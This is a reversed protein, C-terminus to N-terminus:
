IDSVENEQKGAIKEYVRKILKVEELIASLHAVEEGQRMYALTWLKEETSIPDLYRYKALQQDIFELTKKAVNLEAQHKEILKDIGNSNLEKLDDLDKLCNM